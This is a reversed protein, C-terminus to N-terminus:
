IQLDFQAPHYLNQFIASAIVREFDFEFAIVREFDFEFAIVCEFDSFNSLSLSKFTDEFTPEYEWWVM